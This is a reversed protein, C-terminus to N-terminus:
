TEGAKFLGSSPPPSLPPDVLLIIAAIIAWLFLIFFPVAGGEVDLLGGANLGFGAPDPNGLGANFLVLL